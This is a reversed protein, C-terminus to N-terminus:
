APRAIQQLRWLLMAALPYLLIGTLYGLVAPTPDVLRGHFLMVLLWSLCGAGAAVLLYGLWGVAFSKGVFARRQSVAVWQVLVLVVANLGLPGGSLLDVSLGILFAAGAPMLDPRYVSWYYVSILAVLPELAAVNPMRLPLTALLILALTAVVPLCLRLAVALRLLQRAATM